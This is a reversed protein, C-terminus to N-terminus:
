EVVRFVAGYDDGHGGWEPHRSVEEFGAASIAAALDDVPIGHGPESREIIVLLGGPRLSRRLSACMANPDSMHHYVYRLLIADCCAAPLNADDAQGEVLSMNNLGGTKIRRRIKSLEDADIETAYVHGADGVRRALEASFEGNGAGVDAVQMGPRLNMLEAIQNAEEIRDHACAVAAFLLAIVALWAHRLRSM